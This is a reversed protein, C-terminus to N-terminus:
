WAHTWLCLTFGVVIVIYMFLEIISVNNESNWACVIVEDKALQITPMAKKIYIISSILLTHCQALVIFTLWKSHIYLCLLLFFGALGIKSLISSSVKISYYDGQNTEQVLICIQILFAPVMRINPLIVICHQLEKGGMDCHYSCPLYGLFTVYDCWEHRTLLNQLLTTDHTMYSKGCDM